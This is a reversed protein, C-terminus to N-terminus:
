LNVRLGRLVVFSSSKQFDVFTKRRTGQHGKHKIRGTRIFYIARRLHTPRNTLKSLVNVKCAEGL